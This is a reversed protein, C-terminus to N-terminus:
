LLTKIDNVVEHCVGKELAESARVYWEGTINDALEEDTYKTTEKMISSLSKDITKNGCGTSIFIICIMLLSYIIKKM